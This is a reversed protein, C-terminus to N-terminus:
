EMIDQQKKVRNIYVEFAPICYTLSSSSGNIYGWYDCQRSDFSASTPYYDFDYTESRETGSTSTLKDLKYNNMWTKDLFSYTFDYSKVVVGTVDIVHMKNIKGGTKEIDFIVKGSGFDIEKLRKSTFSFLMYDFKSELTQGVVGSTCSGTLLDKM